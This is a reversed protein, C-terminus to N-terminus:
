SAGDRSGIETAARAHQAASRCASAHEVDGREDAEIASQEFAEAKLILLDDLPLDRDAAHRLFLNIKGVADVVSLDRATM